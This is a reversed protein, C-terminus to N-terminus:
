AGRHIHTPFSTLVFSVSAFVSVSINTFYLAEEQPSVKKQFCETIKAKKEMFESDECVFRKWESLQRPYSTDMVEKWCERAVQSM